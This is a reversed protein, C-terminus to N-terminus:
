NGFLSQIMRLLYPRAKQRQEWYVNFGNVLHYSWDKEKGKYSVKCYNSDTAHNEPHGFGNVTKTKRDITFVESTCLDDNKFVITTDSWSDIPYELLEVFLNGDASARAESCRGEKQFCTIESTQLPYAMASDGISGARSWTGKVNVIDGGRDMVHMPGLGLPVQKDVYLNLVALSCFLAVVFSTLMSLVVFVKKPWTLTSWPIIARFGIVQARGVYFLIFAALWGLPVPVLSILAVNGWSGEMWVVSHEERESECTALNTDHALAKSDSCVGYSWKVFNDAREVDASRQYIAAGVVWVISLLIGLRQWTNLSM